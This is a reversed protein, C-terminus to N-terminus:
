TRTAMDQHSSRGVTCSPPLFLLCRQPLQTFFLCTVILFNRVVTHFSFEFACMGVPFLLCRKNFIYSFNSICLSSLPLFYDQFSFFLYLYIFRLFFSVLYADQPFLPLRSLFTTSPYQFHRSFHQASVLIPHSTSPALHYTQLPLSSVKNNVYHTIQFFIISNLRKRHPVSDFGEASPSTQRFITETGSSKWM